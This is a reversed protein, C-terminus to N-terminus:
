IVIINYVLSRRLYDHAAISGSVELKTLEIETVTAYWHALRRHVLCDLRSCDPPDQPNDIGPAFSSVPFCSCGALGSSSALDQMMPAYRQSSMSYPSLYRQMNEHLCRAANYASFFPPHSESTLGYEKQKPARQGEHPGYVDQCM